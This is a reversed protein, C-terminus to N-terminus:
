IVGILSLMPFFLKHLAVSLIYYILIALGTVRSSM